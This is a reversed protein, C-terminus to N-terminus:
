HIHQDEESPMRAGWHVSSLGHQDEERQSCGQGLARMLLSAKGLIGLMKSSLLSPWAMIKAPGTRASPRRLM